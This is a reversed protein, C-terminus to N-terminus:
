ALKIDSERLGSRSRINRRYRRVQASRRSSSKKGLKELQEITANISQNFGLIDCARIAINPRIMQERESPSLYAARNIDKENVSKKGDRIALIVAAKAIQTGYDTVLKNLYEIADTSVRRARASRIVEEVSASGFSM